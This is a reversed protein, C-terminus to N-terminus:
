NTPLSLAGQKRPTKRTFPEANPKEPLTITVTQGTRPDLIRLVMSTVMKPRPLGDHREM